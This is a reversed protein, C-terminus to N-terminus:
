IRNQIIRTKQLEPVVLDAFDTLGGPLMPSLVNFGDAAGQGFWEQMVDAVTEATGIVVNHDRSGAIRTYLQYNTYL